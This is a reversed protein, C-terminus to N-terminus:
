KKGGPIVGFKHPPIPVLSADTVDNSQGCFPCFAATPADGVREHDLVSVLYVIKCILCGLVTDEDM